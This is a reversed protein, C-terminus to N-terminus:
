VGNEVLFDSLFQTLSPDESGLSALACRAIRVSRALLDHNASLFDLNTLANKLLDGPFYSAEILPEKELLDIALPMLYLLGIRQGIMLRLDDPSFEDLPKKRLRHCSKILWTYGPEPEPWVKGELQEISKRERKPAKV